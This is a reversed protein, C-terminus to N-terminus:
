LKCTSVVTSLLIQFPVIYIVILYMACLSHISLVHLTYMFCILNFIKIYRICFHRIYFCSFTYSNLKHHLIAYHSFSRNVYHNHFKKILDECQKEVVHCKTNWQKYGCLSSFSGGPQSWIVLSLVAWVSAKLLFLIPALILENYAYFLDQIFQILSVRLLSQIPRQWEIINGYIQLLSKIIIWLSAVHNVLNASVQLMLPRIAPHIYQHLSSFPISLPHTLTFFVM